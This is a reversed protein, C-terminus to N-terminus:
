SKNWLKRALPLGVCSFLIQKAHKLLSAPPFLFERNRFIWPLKDPIFFKAQRALHIELLEKAFRIESKDLPIRAANQLLVTVWLEQLRLTESMKPAPKIGIANSDHIRYQIVKDPISLIGGNREALMAIWRDHVSIGEPIPLILDLLSARFFSLCGTVNNIGAIQARMSGHESIAGFKRWSPALLNGDADIVEADGFVLAKDRIASHLRELKQPLWIDDQDALAIYDFDALSRKAITLAENFAKRHGLNKKGSFIELPLDQCFSNLISVTSDSSGDDYAIIKDPSLTQGKLSKLFQPLFREGNYTCLVICIRNM